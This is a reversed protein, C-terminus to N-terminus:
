PDASKQEVRDVPAKSAKWTIVPFAFVAVMLLLEFAMLGWKGAPNKVVMWDDGPYYPRGYDDIEPDARWSRYLLCSCLLAKSRTM